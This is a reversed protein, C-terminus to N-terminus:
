NVVYYVPVDEYASYDSATGTSTVRKTYTLGLDIGGYCYQDSRRYCQAYITISNIQTAKSFTYTKTKGTGATNYGFDQEWIVTSGNATIKIKWGCNQQVSAKVLKGTINIATIPTKLTYTQTQTWATVDSSTYFRKTSSNINTTNNSAYLDVTQNATDTYKYYKRKTSKVVKFVDIEEYYSYDSATGEVLQTATITIGSILAINSHGGATYYGNTIYLRYFRYGKTNSSLDVTFNGTTVTNEVTKLTTWTAGDNGAQVQFKNINGNGNGVFALKTIKLPNKYSWACWQPMGDGSHWQTPTAKFVHWFEWSGYHSSEYTTFGDQSASTLKPQTWSAWKYYKRKKTGDKIAKM